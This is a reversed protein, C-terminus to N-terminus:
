EFLVTVKKPYFFITVTDRGSEDVGDFERTTIRIANEIKTEPTLGDTPNYNIYQEINGPDEIFETETGDSETVIIKILNSM